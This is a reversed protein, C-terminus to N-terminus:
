ARVYHFCGNRNSPKNYGGYSGVCYPKGDKVDSWDAFRCDSCNGEFCGAPIKIVVPCEKKEM